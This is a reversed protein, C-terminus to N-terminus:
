LSSHLVDRRTTCFRARLIAHLVPHGEGDSIHGKLASGKKIVIELAALSEPEEGPDPLPGSSGRGIGAKGAVAEM